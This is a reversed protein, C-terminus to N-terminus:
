CRPVTIQNYVFSSHVYGINLDYEPEVMFWRNSSYNSNPPYVWQSDTWCIMLVNTNNYLYKYTTYSSIHKKPDLSNMMASNDNRITTSDTISLFM